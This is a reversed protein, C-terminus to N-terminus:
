IVTKATLQMIRQHESWNHGSEEKNNGKKKRKTSWPQFDDVFAEGFSCNFFDYGSKHTEM